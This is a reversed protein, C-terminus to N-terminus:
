NVPQTKPLWILGKRGESDGNLVLDGWFTTFGVINTVIQPGARQFHAKVIEVARPLFTESGM